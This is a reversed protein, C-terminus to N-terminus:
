VYHVVVELTQHAFIHGLPTWSPIPWQWNGHSFFKKKWLKEGRFIVIQEKKKFDIDSDIGDEGAVESPTKTLIKEPANLIKLSIPVSKTRLRM